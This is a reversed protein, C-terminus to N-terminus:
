PLALDVRSPAAAVASTAHTAAEVTQAAGDGSLRSVTIFLRESAVGKAVLSEKVAQARANALLRLADDDIRADALLIAEL